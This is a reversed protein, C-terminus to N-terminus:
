GYVGFLVGFYLVRLSNLLDFFIDQIYRKIVLFVVLRLMFFIMILVRIFLCNVKQYISISKYVKKRKGFDIIVVIYNDIVYVM